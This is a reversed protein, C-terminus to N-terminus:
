EKEEKTESDTRNIDKSLGQYVMDQHAIGDELYVESCNVFGLGLYFEELYSQASVKVPKGHALATQLAHHMLERGLGTHREEKPTVVRGIKVCDPKLYVRAYAKLGEDWLFVHQGTLDKDDVDPYACNQEVVFVECRLRYIEYLERTTLEDFTKVHWKM